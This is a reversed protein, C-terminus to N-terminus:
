NTLDIRAEYDTVTGVDYKNKAFVTDYKEILKEIKIKKIKDLHDLNIRFADENVHENFNVKVEEIEENKDM